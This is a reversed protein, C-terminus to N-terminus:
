GAPVAQATGDLDARPAIQMQKLITPLIDISRMPAKSDKKGVGAGAFVIPIEQVPQQAGGHDGAVGYSTNDRPPGCVDASYARPWRTSSRRRTSRGGCGSTAPDDRGHEGDGPPLSRRRARVHRDRGASDGHGTRRQDEGSGHDHDALHPDGLGPLHLPRQRDRDAARALIVPQPVVRPRCKQGM